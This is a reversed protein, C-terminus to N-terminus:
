VLMEYRITCLLVCLDLLMQGFASWTKTSSTTTDTSIHATQDDDSIIPILSWKQMWDSREPNVEYQLLGNKVVDSQNVGQKKIWAPDNRFPQIDSWHFGAVIKIRFHLAWTIKSVVISFQTSLCAYATNQDYKTINASITASLLGQHKTVLTFKPNVSM